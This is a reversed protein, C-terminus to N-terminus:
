GLWREFERALSKQPGSLMRAGCASLTLNFAHLACESLVKGRKPFNARRSRKITTIDTFGALMGEDTKRLPRIFLSSPLQCLDERRETIRGVNHIDLADIVYQMEFARNCIEAIITQYYRFRHGM